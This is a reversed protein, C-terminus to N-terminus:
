EDYAAVRETFPDFEAETPSFDHIETNNPQNNTRIPLVVDLNDALGNAVQIIIPMGPDAYRIAIPEDTGLGNLIELLYRVNCSFVIDKGEGKQTITDEKFENGEQTKASIVRMRNQKANIIVHAIVGDQTIDRFLNCRDLVEKLLSSSIEIKSDFRAPILRSIDPYEAEYIASYIKTNGIEYVVNADNFRILAMASPTSKLIRKVEAVTEVPVTIRADLVEGDLNYVQHALRYRDTAATKFQKDKIEHLIGSLVKENPNKSAAYETRKYMMLLVDGPIQFSNSGHVERLQPYMDIHLCNMNVEAGKSKIKAKLGNVIIRTNAGTLKNLLDTFQKGPLVLGGEEGEVVCIGPECYLTTQTTIKGDSGRLTIKDADVKMYLGTLVPISTRVAITGVVRSVAEKLVATKVTISFQQNTTFAEAEAAKELEIERLIDPAQITVTETM